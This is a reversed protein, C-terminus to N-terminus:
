NRTPLSTLLIKLDDNTLIFGAGLFPSQKSQRNLMDNQGAVVFMGQWFSYRLQARLNLESFEFAEVTFKFKNRFFMYDLGLGGSSEIIGGRVSFNYFNKAFQLNFKLKSKYTKTESVNTTSGGSVATKTDVKEVVGAPDDVIGILYYRDLGPQLRVGISTTTLGLTGLNYTNFDLSTQTRNATDLFGNVGEIATNLGEVTEEDNILKGITGEGRNVKGTIEDINKMASDLRAMSSKIQGRISESGNESLLADLSKTVRDVQDVIDGIQEKNDATVEALDKTISEINLVIRGLVHARSGDDSVAEQLVKATDKLSGAIEGVQSIVSDLSGKDKVILIQDGSALKPDSRSGPSISVFKDGLIGASKVEVAASSYLQFDPKITLTVRALGDETLEIDKILGVPIGASKIQSGKVLGNADTVQFWNVKQRGWLNPSESVAMSMYAIMGGVIVVLMGVKMEIAQFFKM